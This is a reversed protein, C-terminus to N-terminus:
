VTRDVGRGIQLVLLWLIFVTAIAIMRNLQPALPKVGGFGLSHGLFWILASLALIGAFSAMKGSKFLQLIELIKHM